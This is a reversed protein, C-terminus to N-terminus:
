LFIRQFQKFTRTDIQDVSVPLMKWFLTALLRKWLHSHNHKILPFLRYLLTDNPLYLFRLLFQAQLIDLRDKVNHKRLRSRLQGIPDQV